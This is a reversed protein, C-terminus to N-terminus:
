NSTPHLFFQSVCWGCVPIGFIRYRYQSNVYSHGRSVSKLNECCHQQMNPDQPTNRRTSQYPLSLLSVKYNLQPLCTTAVTPSPVHSLIM